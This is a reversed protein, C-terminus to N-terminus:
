REFLRKIKRFSFLSAVIRGMAWLSVSRTRYELRGAKVAAIISDLDKAADVLSYTRGLQWATHCDSTGVLPKGTEAALRVARANFNVLRNHYSAYEIADFFPLLPLLRGRLSQFIVFFPHPAIFLSDPTKLRPLDALRYRIGPGAAFRPNIILVHCRDATIEVGPLLLVGRKEAYARLDDGYTIRNHNTVALADFGLKAARDILDRATYAIRDQPDEATHSHFDIKLM